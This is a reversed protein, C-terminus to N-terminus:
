PKKPKPTPKKSEAISDIILQGATDQFLRYAEGMLSTHLRAIRFGELLGSVFIRFVQQTTEEDSKFTTKFDEWSKLIAKRGTDILIPVQAEAFESSTTPKKKTKSM